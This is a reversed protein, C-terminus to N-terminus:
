KAAVREVVYAAVDRIQQEDLTDKFAPMGNGGNTVQKVVKEENPRLEDLDPGVKGKANAARMTHCDACGAEAFVKAGPSGSGASKDGGGGGDGGKGGCGATVLLISALAIAALAIAFLALRRM